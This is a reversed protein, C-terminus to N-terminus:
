GPIRGFGAGTIAQVETQKWEYDPEPHARLLAQVAEGDSMRPQNSAGSRNEAPKGRQGTTPKRREGSRSESRWTSLNVTSMEARLRAENEAMEVRFRATTEALEATHKEAVQTLTSRLSAAEKEAQEASRLASVTETQAASLREASVAAEQKAEIWQQELQDIRALAQDKEAQATTVRRDAISETRHITNTTEARLRTM